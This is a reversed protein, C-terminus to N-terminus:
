SAASQGSALLECGRLQSTNTRTSNTRVECFLTKLLWFFIDSDRRDQSEASTATVIPHATQACRQTRNMQRQLIQASCATDRADLHGKVPTSRPLVCQSDAPNAARTSNNNRDDEEDFTFAAETPQRADDKKNEREENSWDRFTCSMSSPQVKSQCIRPLDALGQQADRHLQGVRPARVLSQANGLNLM